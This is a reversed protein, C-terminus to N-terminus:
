DVSYALCIWTASPKRLAEVHVSMELLLVDKEDLPM